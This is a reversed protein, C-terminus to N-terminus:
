SSMRGGMALGAARSIENARNEATLTHVEIEEQRDRFWLRVSKQDRAIRIAAVGLMRRDLWRPLGNSMVHLMVAFLALAPLLFTGLADAPGFRVQPFRESAVIAAAMVGIAALVMGTAALFGMRKRRGSCGRCAPVPIQCGRTMHVGPFNYRTGAFIRHTVIERSGCSVCRPPFSLYNLPLWDDVPPVGGTRSDAVSQLWHVIQDVGRWNNPVTITGDAFVLKMANMEPRIATIDRIPYRRIRKAGRYESVTERDMVVRRNGYILWLPGSLIGIAPLFWADLPVEAGRSSVKWLYWARAVGAIFALPLIWRALPPPEAVIADRDM